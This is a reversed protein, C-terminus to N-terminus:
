LKYSWTYRDYPGGKYHQSSKGERFSVDFTGSFTKKPSSSNGQLLKGRNEPTIINTKPLARILSLVWQYNAQSMTAFFANKQAVLHTKLLQFIM